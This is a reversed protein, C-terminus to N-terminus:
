LRVGKPVVFHLGEHVIHASWEKINHIIEGDLNMAFPAGDKRVIRINKCKFCSAKTEIADYDQKKLDSLIALLKLRRMNPIMCCGAYGDNFNIDRYFYMNGGLVNGNGFIIESFNGELLKEDDIRVEYVEQRSVFLSCIVALSYPIQENFVSLM